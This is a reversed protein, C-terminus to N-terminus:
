SSCNSTCDPSLGKCARLAAVSVAASASPLSLSSPETSAPLNASMSIKFASGNASMSLALLISSIMLPPLCYRVASSRLRVCHDGESIVLNIEEAHKLESAKDDKQPM